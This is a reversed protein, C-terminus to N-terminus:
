ALNARRPYAIAPDTLVNVLAPVRTEFARELAPRLQAPARVLEGHGGLAEVVDDYRTQPRLEAAVSYGYLMEMPHKELGWIGNNGMVGVVHVGHRVLTDFEMGSFGFAGDGLLLVVQRQPRALKAALAYGPGSGLCGFPGPDLWCGPEYSDIVRGAYSVFDGGDGIVIADRDLLAGLEAYVRMPHLPAREDALEAQEADRAAQEAARLLSRWPGGDAGGGTGRALADLTQGVPGYLEVAVPRPHARGPRVRDVVVLQTEAGFVAGFGLRFDMPTGIVIAVDADRLGERRARSFFLEHDAPLCGRALGNLFVPIRLQEVLARLADEGHGWYLDTGAMVVPRRADRLLAIARELAEADPAAGATAPVLRMARPEERGEGYVHDLPIDVFSPGGHPAVAAAFADDVLAPIASTSTSTAALKTLPAVLPVHDLEQLSGQGWRCAPARGGLVLMPSHNQQASAIASITNTVGPGATVAVVGPLRTVKAWGEAAFAASQEHRVDVIAIGEARCGDYLPFIHGGSLTFLTTVGHAKLRRAVLHGGVVDPPDPAAPAANESTSGRM